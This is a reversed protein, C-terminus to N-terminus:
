TEVRTRPRLVRALPIIVLAALVAIGIGWQVGLNQAIIGVILPALVFGARSIWSVVTVASGPSIGPVYTAAHMAAPFLTAVGLGAVICAGIFAAASGALLAGALVVATVAMSVQAVAREGFKNVFFDGLFRGLTLSITFAVVGFGVSGAPLGIDTLYISSWRQPVDEVTVALVTLFGLAGLVLVMPASVRAVSFKSSGIPAVSSPDATSLHDSTFEDALNLDSSNTADLGSVTRPLVWTFTVVVGLLGLISVGALTWTLSFDLALTIAGILAGVVTGLAWFAHMNNIISRQYIRQLELGHANQAADLVSDVAGIAFIVLGLAVVTPALGVFPLLPLMVTVAIMSFKGSGLNKIGVAAFPGFILGGAAGASLVAGVAIDSMSLQNQLDALRPTVASLALGNIFFLFITAFRARTLEKAPLVFGAPQETM